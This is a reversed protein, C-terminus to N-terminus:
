ADPRGTSDKRRLLPRLMGGVLQGLFFAGALVLLTAFRWELGALLRLGVVVLVPIHVALFWYLSFKRVGARWFGFPVNLVAVALAVTLLSQVFTLGM